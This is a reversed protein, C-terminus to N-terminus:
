PTSTLALGNSRSSLMPVVPRREHVRLLHLASLVVSFKKYEILDSYYRNRPYEGSPLDDLRADRPVIRVLPKNAKPEAHDMRGYCLNM